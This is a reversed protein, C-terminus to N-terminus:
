CLRETPAGSRLVGELEDPVIILFLRPRSVKMDSIAEELREKRNEDPVIFLVVPFVGTKNQEIGTEYYECYRKCKRLIDQVVETALDMEVFWFDKYEGSATVASMDPRLSIRRGNKEYERWCDPELAIDVLELSQGEDDETKCRCITVFQTYCEAVALTHRLFMSSPLNVKQRAETKGLNLLRQGAETLYWIRGQSGKRIGGVVRPLHQILGKNMLRNLARTTATAYARPVEQQNKPNFFLRKIQDTRMFSLTRLATLINRDKETLQLEIEALKLRSVRM